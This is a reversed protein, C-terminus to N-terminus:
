TVLLAGHWWCSEQISMELVTLWLSVGNRWLDGRTTAITVFTQSFEWCSCPCNWDVGGGRIGGGHRKHDKIRVTLRILNLMGELHTYLTISSRLLSPSILRFVTADGWSSFLLSLGLELVTEALYLPVPVKPVTAPSARLCSVFYAM